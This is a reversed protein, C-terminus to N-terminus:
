PTQLCRQRHALDFTAGFQYGVIEIRRRGDSVGTVNSPVALDDPKAIFVVYLPLVAQLRQSSTVCGLCGICRQLHAPEASIVLASGPGGSAGLDIMEAVDGAGGRQCRFIDMNVVILGALDAPWGADGM